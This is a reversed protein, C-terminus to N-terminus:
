AALLEPTLTIPAAEKPELRIALAGSVSENLNEAFNISLRRTLLLSTLFLLAAGLLTYGPGAIAGASGWIV